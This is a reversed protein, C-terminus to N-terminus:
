EHIYIHPIFSVVTTSCVFAHCLMNSATLTANMEVVISSLGLWLYM